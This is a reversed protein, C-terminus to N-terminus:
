VTGTHRGAMSAVTLPRNAVHSGARVPGQNRPNSKNVRENMTITYSSGVGPWEGDSGPGDSHPYSPGRTLTDQTKAAMGQGTSGRLM